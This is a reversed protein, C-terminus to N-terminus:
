LTVPESAEVIPPEEFRVSEPTRRPFAPQTSADRSGLLDRLKDLDFAEGVDYFVFNPFCGRLLM